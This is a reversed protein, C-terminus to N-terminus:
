KALDVCVIEKDNRVYMRKNAFAPACWVVDRGFAVNTPEIVKARDLEEHGDRTLKAIILDGQETFLWYRDAQKVIFTTGTQLPREALPWGTGWLRDGSPIDIAFLEGGQDAGYLVNGDIFPQTNVPSIAHKRKDQWMVSAEPRDTALRLMLNKNSYGAIYLYENWRVPSMIISGSTAEYDVTWFVDGTEPDVSTVADPYALILQRRGGAEIITPPSYGQESSTLARWIEEGTRKDFAVVHSGQGGVLCILKDGDILPHASYGWLAAKTKYETKLDKSWVIQGSTLNLCLLNGEAGLTYVFDGDINPTCRPGAPYSISYNVPYEQKWRQEGTVEDLCLIREVGTFSKREFNSVKVDDSTVYDTVIVSGDSVAPGAYGGAVPTRWVIRPGNAPFRDLIGDEKWINDRDPGMWQPWNDAQIVHTSTLVVAVIFLIRKM